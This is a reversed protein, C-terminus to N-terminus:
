GGPDILRSVQSASVRAVRQDLLRAGYGELVDLALELSLQSLTELDGALDLDDALLQPSQEARQVGGLLGELPDGEVPVRELVVGLGDVVALGVLLPLDDDVGLLDPVEGAGHPSLSQEGAPLVAGVGDKGLVEPLLVPPLHLHTLQQCLDGQVGAEEDRDGVALRLKQVSLDALFDGELIQLHPVLDVRVEGVQLRVALGRDDRHALGVLELQM